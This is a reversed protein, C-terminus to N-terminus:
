LPYACVYYAASEANGIIQIDMDAQWHTLIVENYANIHSDSAKRETEYFRGRVSESSININSM